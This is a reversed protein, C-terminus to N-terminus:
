LMYTLFKLMFNSFIFLLLDYIFIIFIIIIIGLINTKLYDYNYFKSKSIYNKIFTLLITSIKIFILLFLMLFPIKYLINYIIGFILGKLGYKLCLICVVLSISMGEYFLYFIASFYGLITCSLVIIISINLLHNFINNINNNILSDKINNYNNFIELKNCKIFVIIGFIFSILLIVSCFSLLYKHRKLYNIIMLIVM